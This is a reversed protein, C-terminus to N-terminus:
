ALRLRTVPVYETEEVVKYTQALNVAESVITDALRDFEQVLETRQRLEDMPWEGFDEDQDISQGPFTIIEIPPTIFDIRAERGCAGCRIGTEAVSTYNKQGCKTCFSRHKGPTKRGQYLVLYGGSRGNWGAQWQYAHAAGFDRLLTSLEDYFEPVQIMDYLTNMTEQDLGLRHLKMNCAYSTSRNVCSMTYYRFHGSLYAEMAKRSRKDVPKYFTHAQKIEKNGM